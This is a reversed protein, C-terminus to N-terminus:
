GLFSEDEENFLRENLTAVLVTVPLPVLERDVGIRHINKPTGNGFLRSSGDGFTENILETLGMALSFTKKTAM